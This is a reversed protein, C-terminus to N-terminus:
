YDNLNQYKSSFSASPLIENINKDNTCNIITGTDTVKCDKYKDHLYKKYDLKQMPFAFDNNKNDYKDIIVKKQKTVSNLLIIIIIIIFIISNKQKM